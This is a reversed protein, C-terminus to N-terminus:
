FLSKLIYRADGREVQWVTKRRGGTKNMSYVGFRRYKLTSEITREKTYVITGKRKLLHEFGM